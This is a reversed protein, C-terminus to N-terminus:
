AGQILCNLSRQIAHPLLLDRRLLRLRFLRGRLFELKGLLGARHIGFGVDDKALGVSHDRHDLIRIELARIALLKGINRKLHDLIQRVLHVQHPAIERQRKM